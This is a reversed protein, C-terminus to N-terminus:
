LSIYCLRAQLSAGNLIFMHITEKKVVETLITNKNEWPIFLLTNM